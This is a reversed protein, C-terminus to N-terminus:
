RRALHVTFDKYRPPLAGRRGARRVLWQTYAAIPTSGFGAVSEQLDIFNPGVACWSNGDQFIHFGWLRSTDTREFFAPQSQLGNMESNGM